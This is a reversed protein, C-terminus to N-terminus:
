QFMMFLLQKTFATIAIVGFQNVSISFLAVMGIFTLIIPLLIVSIPFNQLSNYVTKLKM